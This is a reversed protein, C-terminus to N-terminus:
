PMLATQFLAMLSLAGEEFNVGTIGTGTWGVAFLSIDTPVGLGAQPGWDNNWGALGDFNPIRMDFDMGGLYAGTAGITASNQRGAPQSFTAFAYGDYEPQHPIVVRFQVYPSSSPFTINPGTMQPGLTITQDASQGFVLTAGRHGSPPNTSDDFSQVSLVHFDGPAQQAPPVGPFSRTVNSSATYDVFFASTGGNATTYSSTAIAKHTGLNNITLTHDTPAFAEGANFDLLPV